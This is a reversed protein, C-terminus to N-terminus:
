GWESINKHISLTGLEIFKKKKYPQPKYKLIDYIRKAKENPETCRRINVIEDHNNRATTTVAKQTNMTRVIEAWQSNVGEKKLQHRITNQWDKGPKPGRSKEPAADIRKEPLM